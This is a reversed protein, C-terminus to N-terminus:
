SYAGAVLEPDHSADEVPGQRASGQYTIDINQDTWHLRRQRDSNMLQKYQIRLAPRAGEALHTRKGAYM